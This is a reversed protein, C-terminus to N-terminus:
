IYKTLPKPSFYEDIM